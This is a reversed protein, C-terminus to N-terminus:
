QMTQLSGSWANAEMDICLFRFIHAKILCAVCVSCFSYMNFKRKTSKIYVIISCLELSMFHKKLSVFILLEFFDDDDDDDDHRAALVSIGSGREGRKGITWQRQCTKLAVNRIRVSSGFTHKHQDDQKQGALFEAIYLVYWPYLLAIWPFSYGGGTCRPTTAISFPAKQDGEVVTM